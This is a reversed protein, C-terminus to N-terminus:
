LTSDKNEQNLSLLITKDEEKKLRPRIFKVVKMPENTVNVGKKILLEYVTSLYAFKRMTTFISPFRKDGTSENKKSGGKRVMTNMMEEFHALLEAYTISQIPRDLFKSFVEYLIKFDSLDIINSKEAKEIKMHIADSLLILENLPPDFSDIQNILDEKYDHWLKADEENSFNKSIELGKKRLLGRWSGNKNKYIGM